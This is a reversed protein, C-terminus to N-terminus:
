IEKPSEQDTPEDPMGSMSEWPPYLEWLKAVGKRIYCKRKPTFQAGLDNLIHTALLEKEQVRAYNMDPKTIDVMTRIKELKERHSDEMYPDLNNLLTNLMMEYVAINGDAQVQAMTLKYEFVWQEFDTKEHIKRDVEFEEIM